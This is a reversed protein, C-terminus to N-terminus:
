TAKVQAKLKSILKFVTSPPIDKWDNWTEADVVKKEVLVGKFDEFTKFGDPFKATSANMAAERLAHWVEAQSSSEANNVPSYSALEDTGVIDIRLANRVARVFARNSAITELFLQSFSNTNALTANAVEEYVLPKM